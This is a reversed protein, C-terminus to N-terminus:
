PRGPFRWCHADASWVAKSGALWDHSLEILGGPLEFEALSPRLLLADYGPVDSYQLAAMLLSRRAAVPRAATSCRSRACGCSRRRSSTRSSRATPARCTCRASSTPSSTGTTTSRNPSLWERLKGHSGATGRAVRGRLLRGQVPLRSLPLEVAVLADALPRLASLDARDRRRHDHADRHEAQRRRAEDLCDKTGPSWGNWFGIVLTPTRDLMQRNRRIGAYFCRGTTGRNRCNCGEHSTWDANVTVIAFDLNRGIEAAWTDVGSAGGQMLVTDTPLICLRQEVITWAQDDDHFSRSGTVLIM